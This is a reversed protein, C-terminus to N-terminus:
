SACFAWVLFFTFPQYQALPLGRRTNRALTRPLRRNYGTALVGAGRTLFGATALCSSRHHVGYALRVSARWANYAPFLGM